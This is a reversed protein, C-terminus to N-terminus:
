SHERGGGFSLLALVILTFLILVGAGVFYPNIGSVASEAASVLLASPM